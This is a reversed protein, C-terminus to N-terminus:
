FEITLHEFLGWSTKVQHFAFLSVDLQHFTNFSLSFDEWAIQFMIQANLVQHFFVIKVVGHGSVLEFLNALRNKVFDLSDQGFNFIFEFGLVNVKVADFHDTTSGSDWKKDLRDLFYELNLWWSGEIRALWNGSTAGKLSGNLAWQELDLLVCQVFSNVVTNFEVPVKNFVIVVKAKVCSLIWFGLPFHNIVETGLNGWALGNLEFSSLWNFDQDLILRANIPKSFVNSVVLSWSLVWGMFGKSDAELDLESFISQNCEFVAVQNFFPSFLSFDGFWFCGFFLFFFLFFLFALLSFGLWLGDFLLFKFDLFCLFLGCSLDLEFSVFEVSISFLLKLLIEGLFTFHEVVVSYNKFGVLSFILQFWHTVLPLFVEVSCVSIIHLSLLNWCNQTKQLLVLFPEIVISEVSCSASIGFSDILNVGLNQRDLIAM